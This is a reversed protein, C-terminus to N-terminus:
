LRIDLLAVGAIEPPGSSLPGLRRAEADPRPLGLVELDRSQFVFAIAETFANGPVGALLTSPVGHLSFVQEVNHGLEHVAINFGKYDMGDPGVRTRLRPKDGRRGAELAHGSGRAPDVAVHDALFRAREPAFGLGELIRPLDQEFARASPWRARTLADLRDEAFGARPRFGDYWVDFPELPRGLRREVLRAVEPALPSALVETLLAVVRAEPM